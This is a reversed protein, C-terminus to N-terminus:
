EAVLKNTAPLFEAPIPDDLHWVISVPRSGSHSVYKATGLFLFPATGQKDTDYERVFLLISHGNKEHEFYRRATPSTDSTTSQSEWHFLHENMSYDHYMTSPSYDKESKILTILFFDCHKEKSFYVGQRLTNPRLMDLAACIQNRTYHCHVHLPSCFPLRNALPLTHLHQYTYDVIEQLEQLLTLNCKALKSLRERIVSFATESELSETFITFYTMQLLQEEQRSCSFAPLQKWDPLTRKLFELWAKDDIASFRPFATTLLKEDPEQFDAHYGAIVALRYLGIKLKTNYM